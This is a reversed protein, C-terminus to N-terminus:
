MVDKIFRRRVPSIIEPQDSSTKIVAAVESLQQIALKATIALLSMPGTNEELAYGVIQRGAENDVNLILRESIKLAPPSESGLRVLDVKPPGTYLPALANIQLLVQDAVSQVHKFEPLENKFRNTILDATTAFAVPAFRMWSNDKQIGRIVTKGTKRLFHVATRVIDSTSQNAIPALYIEENVAKKKLEEVSIGVWKDGDAYDFAPLNRFVKDWEIFAIKYDDNRPVSLWLNAWKKENWKDLAGNSIAENLKDVMDKLVFPHCLKLYSNVENQFEGDVFGERNLRPQFRKPDVDIAGKIGWLAKVEFEQVYVGKYLIAVKSHGNMADWSTPDNVSTLFSKEVWEPKHIPFDIRL